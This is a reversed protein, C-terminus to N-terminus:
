RQACHSDDAVGRSDIAESRPVGAHVRRIRRVCCWPVPRFYEDRAVTQAFIGVSEPCEDARVASSLQFEDVEDEAIQRSDM